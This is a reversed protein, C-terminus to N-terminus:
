ALQRGVFRYLQIQKFVHEFFPGETVDHVVDAAFM